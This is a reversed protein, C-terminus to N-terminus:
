RSVFPKEGNWLMLPKNFWTLFMALTVPLTFVPLKDVEILQDGKLSVSSDVMDPRCLIMNNLCKGLEQAMVYIHKDEEVFM